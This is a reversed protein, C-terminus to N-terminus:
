VDELFSNRLEPEQHSKIKREGTICFLIHGKRCKSSCHDYKTETKTHCWKCDKMEEGGSGMHENKRGDQRHM